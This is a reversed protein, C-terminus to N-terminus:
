DAHDHDHDHEHAGYQVQQARADMLIDMFSVPKDEWKVGNRLVEMVKGMIIEDALQERKEGTKFMLKLQELDTEPHAKHYNEVQQEIEEDTVEIGEAEILRRRIFFWKLEQEALPALYPRLTDADYASGSEQIQRQIMDELTQSLLSPPLEFDFAGIVAERLFGASRQNAQYQAFTNLQERVNKEFDAYSEFKEDVQAAFDDNLEPLEVKELSKLHVDWFTVGESATEIIQPEDEQIEIRRTEDVKMGPLKADADKGLYGSGLEFVLTERKNGVIAVGGKDVEQMGVTLRDGAEATSNEDGETVVAKDRQMTEIHRKVDEDTIDVVFREVSAEKWKDVDFEPSVELVATFSFSGDDGYETDEVPSLALPNIGTEKLADPLMAKIAEEAADEKIQRGFRQNLIKDPVKGPRFGPLKATKRLAKLSEDIHPQLEDATLEIGIRVVCGEQVPEKVNM